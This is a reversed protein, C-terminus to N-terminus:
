KQKGPSISHEASRAAELRRYREDKRLDALPPAKRIEEMSYGAKLCAELARWSHERMGAQEYVLVARFLVFGDGPALRLAEQIDRLSGARDGFSSRYMALNSRLKPDKPNTALGEEALEIAKRFEQPAKHALAPIWRYADALNGRKASDKPALEVAKEYQAAADVYREQFYYVTGL